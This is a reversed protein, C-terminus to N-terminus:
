NLVFAGEFGISHVTIGCNMCYHIFDSQRDRSYNNGIVIADPSFIRQLKEPYHSQLPDPVRNHNIIVYDVHFPNDTEIPENLVLVTKGNVDFIENAAVQEEKWARWNIHAPKVAYATKKQRATDTYIVAYKDGKILEIHNTKGTNYVVLRQQHLTDWEDKCFSLLLLCFAGLGIFLAPKKKKMLFLIFGSIFIYALVLELGTLMLFRFSVPNCGQLWSVIKDFVTVLWITCLGIAKALAPIFSLAIISIGLILVIGMFLYAAVNAIIFLLPFTHFYYIVLPAVLVEAAISAAVAGWLLRAPKNVPSLWKYVPTYFLILSLVAVFSLQFGVSFLWMPQACLLVFATAFLQNLSNNNKELIVSFALLSFMLAARVASPPAGAMVVYFWVLPLAIAYKVWLHRRDKLWWLLVSIVFFFIAVNGGSIAIIHIIGTESYSQRLDEDLNVEDGLLMAQILGKTKPDPLYKDLQQLCFQHAREILPTHDPDNASCLRIDTSSCFQQCVINNRRCYTAYDFEFPNGANKIPEWDGPVWISDGKHLMMPLYDKYLYMFASGKVATAKGNDVTNVITVPIKWSNEKEAPEDTIRALYSTKSNINRGFWATDNRIDSYYSVAYGGACMFIHLLLFIIIMFPGKNKKSYVIASFLSFSVAVAVLAYMGPMLAFDYFFIGAAFPLLIRFFPATEWFYAKHLPWRKM